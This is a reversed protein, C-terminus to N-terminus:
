ITKMSFPVSNERYAAEKWEAIRNDVKGLYYPWPWTNASYNNLIAPYYKSINISTEKDLIGTNVTMGIELLQAITIAKWM